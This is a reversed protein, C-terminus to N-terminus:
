LYIDDVPYRIERDKVIKCYETEEMAKSIGRFTKYSVASFLSIPSIWNM